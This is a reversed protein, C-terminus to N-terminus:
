KEEPAAPPAARDRQRAVVVGVDSPLLERFRKANGLAIHRMAEGSLGGYGGNASLLPSGDERFGYADPFTNAVVVNRIGFGESRSTAIAEAIATLLYPDSYPSLKADILPLEHRTSVQFLRGIIDRVMNPQFAIIPKRVGHERVNPCGLNLEIAQLNKIGALMQIMREFDEVCFGAISVRAQMGREAIERCVETLFACAANIGPNPLGLANLPPAFREGANGDRQEVTYSGLTVSSLVSPDLAMLPSVDAPLKVWGAAVGLPIM